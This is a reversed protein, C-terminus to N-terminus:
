ATTTHRVAELFDKTGPNKQVFSAHLPKVRQSFAARNCDATTVGLQKFHDTADTEVQAARQFHEDTATSAASLVADRQKAPM